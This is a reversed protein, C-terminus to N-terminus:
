TKARKTRATDGYDEANRAEDLYRRLATLFPLAAEFAAGGVAEEAGAILPRLRTLATDRRKLGKATARVLKGRGDEPDPRIAVLGQNELHHLQQQSKQMKAAPM